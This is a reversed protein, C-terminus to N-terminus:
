LMEHLSTIRSHIHSHSQQLFDLYFPSHELEFSLCNFFLFIYYWIIEFYFDEKEKTHIRDRKKM